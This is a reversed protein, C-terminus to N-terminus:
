GELGPEATVTMLTPAGPASRNDSFTVFPWLTWVGATDIETSIVDYYIVGTAATLITAPWHGVTGPPTPKKYKIWTKTAGTVDVSLTLQIRLESQGVYISETQITM